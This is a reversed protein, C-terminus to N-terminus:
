PSSVPSPRASEEPPLTPDPGPTAQVAGIGKEVIDLMAQEVAPDSLAGEFAQKQEAESLGVCEPYDGSDDPATLDGAKIAKVAAAQCGAVNDPSASASPEAGADNGEGSGDSGGCGALLVLAVAAAAPLRHRRRM